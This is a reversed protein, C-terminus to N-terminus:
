RSCVDCVTGHLLRGNIGDIIPGQKNDFNHEAAWMKDEMTPVVRPDAPGTRDSIVGKLFGQGCKAFRSVSQHSSDARDLFRKYATFIDTYTAGAINWKELLAMLKESRKLDNIRKTETAYNVTTLTITHKHASEYQITRLTGDLITVIYGEILCYPTDMPYSWTKALLYASIDAMNDKGWEAPIPWYAWDRPIDRWTWHEKVAPYIANTDTNLGIQDIDDTTSYDTITAKAEAM